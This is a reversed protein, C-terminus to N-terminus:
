LSIRDRFVFFLCVFLSIPMTACVKLRLVSLCLETLEFGALDVYHNEPWVPSCLSVSDCFLFLCIGVKQTNSFLHTHTHTHTHTHIHICIYIHTHRYIHTHIYTHTHIYIHTHISFHSHVRIKCKGVSTNQLLNIFRLM